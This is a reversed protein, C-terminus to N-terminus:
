LDCQAYKQYGKAQIAEGAGSQRVEPTCPPHIAESKSRSHEAAGIIGVRRRHYYVTGHLVPCRLTKPSRQLAIKQRGGYEDTRSMRQRAEPGDGDGPEVEQRQRTDEYCYDYTLSQPSAHRHLFELM